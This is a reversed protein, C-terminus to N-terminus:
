DPPKKRTRGRPLAGKGPPRRSVGRAIDTLPKLKRECLMVGLKFAHWAAYDADGRGIGDRVATLRKRIIRRDSKGEACWADLGQVLDDFRAHASALVRDLEEMSAPRTRKPM